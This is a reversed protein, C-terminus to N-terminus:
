TKKNYNKKKRWKTLREKIHREAGQETPKYYVKEGMEKPFFKMDPAFHKDFDHAYQYGKGYGFKKMLETSANRLELPVPYLPLNKIDNEAKKLALYSANSKYSTALYTVVQALNIAAEPMGVFEVAQFGSVAVLLALPNANGIDESALIVLRRAIFRPDEGSELMRALYYLAADPNSGRISKIFASITDYHHDGVQDYFLVKKAKKAIEKKTITKEKKDACFELINLAVRADGSCLSILYDLAKNTIKLNLNGLGRKKNKLARWVIKKIEKPKLPEFRLIHCRSILPPILYFSPNETTAAILVITGNEIYPLFANQQKKNFHHIEDVFLFTFTGNFDKLKKAEEIVKRIEKVGSGVASFEKFSGKLEKALIRALTTKGTGPPGWFILSACRGKDLGRLFKRKKLLHSQGIFEKLSQPRMREALPETRKM